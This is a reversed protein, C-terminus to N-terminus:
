TANDAPPSVLAKAVLMKCEDYLAIGDPHMKERSGIFIRAHNMTNLVEVLLARWNNPQTPVDRAASLAAIVSALGVYHSLEPSKMCQADHAAIYIDALRQFEPSTIDVEDEAARAPQPPAKMGIARYDETIEEGRKILRTAVSNGAADERSNPAGSHNVFMACDGCVLTSGDDRRFGYKRIHDQAVLPLGDFQDTSITRDFVENHSWWIQGETIDEDAFLGLGHITSSKLLTKVLLM